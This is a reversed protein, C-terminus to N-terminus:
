EDEEKEPKPKDGGPKTKEGGAILLAGSEDTTLTITVKDGAKLDAPKADKGSITVKTGPLLKFVRDGIKENGLTISTADVQKIAGGTTPGMVVVESVERTQAEKGSVVTLSAVAGKPVDALKAGKGDVIVKADATLKAILEQDGKGTVTITRATADVAAVKGALQSRKTVPKEPKEGKEGESRAASVLLAASEDTTLTITVKDGARLDALKVDKGNIVVKGDAVKITRPKKEGDLTISAADVQKIIGNLTSGTIRLETVPAPTGNKTIVPAMFSATADRPVDALKAEKGDIFVKVGEALLFEKEAAGDAGKTALTITNAKADVSVIRGGFKALQKEPKPKEPKKDDEPKPTNGAGNQNNNGDQENKGKQNNNGNKENPNPKEGPKKEGAPKTSPKEGQQTPNKDDTSASLAYLGFGGAALSVCVAVACLAKLKFLTMSRLVETSLTLVTAPVVAAGTAGTTASVALTPPVAARLAEASLLTGLAALPVVVGRRTLRDRLMERARALRSSVTGEPLGLKEAAEAKNLGRLACLVLPTRYKEPLANLQEDIVPLLEAASAGGAASEPATPPRNNAEAAYEREVQQRRVARGRAKLATRYAVGYLWPALRDPPHVAGARKALVLFTAQFADDAAHSDRLVRRCVGLVMPGHRRVLSGFADQDRLTRYRALLEGDGRDAGDRVRDFVERITELPALAM